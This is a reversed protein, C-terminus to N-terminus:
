AKDEGGDVIVTEIRQVQIPGDNPGTLEMAKLDPLVKNLLTKAANVQQADAEVEGMAIKSMRNILQSARIKARCAENHRYGKKRGAM